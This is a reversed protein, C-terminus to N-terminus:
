TRAAPKRGRKATAAGQGDRERRIRDLIAPANASLLSKVMRCFVVVKANAQCSMSM